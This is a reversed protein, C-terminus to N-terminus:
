VLDADDPVWSFGCVNCYATTRGNISTFTVLTIRMAGDEGCKACTKELGASRWNQGTFRRNLDAVTM